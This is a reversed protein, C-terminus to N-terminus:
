GWGGDEEELLRRIGRLEALIATLLETQEESSAAQDDSHELSVRYRHYSGADNMGLYALSLQDGVKVGRSELENRLVTRYAAVVYRKGPQVDDTGAAAEITYAPVSGEAFKSRATAVDVVRGAITQGPKTPNWLTPEALTVPVSSM